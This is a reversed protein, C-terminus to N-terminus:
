DLRAAQTILRKADEGYTGGIYWINAKDANSRLKTIASRYDGQEFNVSESAIIKGGLDGFFKTWNALASQGVPDTQHTVISAKGINAAVYQALAKTEYSGAPINSYLWPSVGLLRDSQAGGNMLVVKLEAAVPVTALVVNSNSVLAYAIGNFQKFRRLASPGNSPQDGPTRMRQSSSSGM